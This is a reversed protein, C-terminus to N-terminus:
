HDKFYDSPTHGTVKKFAATFSNRNSFGCRDALGYINLHQTQKESIMKIAYNIRYKNIFENFNSGYVQNIIASVQYLPRSLSNSLDQLSYGHKLFSEQEALLIEIEDRVLFIQEMSLSKTTKIQKVDQTKGFELDNEEQRTTLSLYPSGSLQQKPFGFNELDKAPSTDPHIFLSCSIFVASIIGFVDSVELLYQSDGSLLIIFTPIIILFQMVLYFFLWKVWHTNYGAFFDRNDKAYKMLVIVESFGYIFYTFTILFLYFESTLWTGQSFNTLASFDHAGEILALKQTTSSGFFLLHDVFFVVLPLFHLLDGRTPFMGLLASRVYLFSLPMYLLAFMYGVRYFHPLYLILGTKFLFLESFGLIAALNAIALWFIAASKKRYYIIQTSSVILGLLLAFMSAM